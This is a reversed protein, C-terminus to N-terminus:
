KRVWYSGEKEEIVLNNEALVKGSGKDEVKLTITISKEAKEGGDTIATWLVGEGKNEVEKTTTNDGTNLFGGSTTSWRYIINSNKDEPKLRPSLTIGRISSMAPSYSNKDTNISVEYGAKKCGMMVTAFLVMSCIISFMRKM